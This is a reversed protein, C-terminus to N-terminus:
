NQLLLFLTLKFLNQDFVSLTPILFNINLFTMMRLRISSNVLARSYFLTSIAAELVLLNHVM